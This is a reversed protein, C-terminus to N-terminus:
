EGRKIRIKIRAVWRLWKLAQSLLEKMWNRFGNLIRVESKLYPRNCSYKLSWLIDLLKGSENIERDTRGRKSWIRDEERMRMFYLRLYKVVLQKEKEATWEPGLGELEEIQDSHIKQLDLLLESSPFPSPAPTPGGGSTFREPKRGM